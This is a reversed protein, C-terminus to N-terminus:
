PAALPAPNSGQTLPLFPLVNGGAVPDVIFKTVGPLIEEMAELYLRQRTVEKSKQYEALVALFRAAEGEARAIRAEKFAEAQQIVVQASGLSRPVQDEQYALANNIRSEKDVRAAVVDDFAPRVPDPPRVTQLDVGLIEIGTQYDNLLAQLTQRTQDQVAVKEVTLVDDLARQGIVQRLAAETADKLTRGDPRGAAIGRDEEGPDSVRFLFLELDAIKYQVIMQINIINLDGSIMQAEGEVDRTPSSRFGLEMTRTETIAVVDVNGIPTPPYWHLGQDRTGRFEGFLREAAQEAPAVTYFGTALWIFFPVFFAALALPVGGPVRGGLRFRDFRERLDRLMKDPDFEPRREGYM